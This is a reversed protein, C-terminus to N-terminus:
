QPRAGTQPARFGYNDFLYDQNIADTEFISTDNSGRLTFDLTGGSDKVFKVIVADQPTLEFLVATPEPNPQDETPTPRVIKVVRINQVTYSTAQGVRTETDTGEQVAITLLLDVHDGANIVKSQTLLDAVPFAMVVRAEPIQQSLPGEASNALQTPRFFEGEGLREVLIQGALANSDTIVGVPVLTEPYDRTIIDTTTLTTGAELVRGAVPISRSPVPTATPAVDVSSAVPVQRLLYYVLAGSAIALLVGLAILIGGRRRPM